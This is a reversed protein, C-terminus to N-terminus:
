ENDVYNKYSKENKLLYEKTEEQAAAYWWYEVGEYKAGFHEKMYEKVEGTARVLPLYIKEHMLLFALKDAMCLKSPERNDKKAYHRSHYLTFDHWRYSKKQILLSYSDDDLMLLDVFEWGIDKFNQLDQQIIEKPTDTYTIEKDDWGDFLHMLKAGFEPHKKGDVGDINNKGWYGLDHVFFAVWVRPDWTFGYLRIWAIAVYVPHLLFQHAGYLITKTGIKM